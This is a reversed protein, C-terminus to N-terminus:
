FFKKGGPIVWGDQLFEKPANALAKAKFKVENKLVVV